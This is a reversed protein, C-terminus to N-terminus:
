FVLRLSLVAVHRPTARAADEAVRIQFSAELIVGRLQLQLGPSLFLVDESGARRYDFKM